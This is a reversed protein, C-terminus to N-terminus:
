HTHTTTRHTTAENVLEVTVHDLGADRLREHITARLEEQTNLSDVSVKVRVTGITLRSCVQWVHCDEVAEVSEISMLSAQLDAIPIPSRELLLDLSDRLVTYASWIIVVAILAATIPDVMRIEFVAVIATSIIVAVSAGTDGLLHYFAGRENLSLEDGHLYGVSAVNVVLGGTALLITMTPDLDVPNYFRQYSEYLIVLAMPVLLVGNLLAAFPELRHLGYTWLDREEYRDAVYTAAFAMLYSLADFLMHVADSLLALSGFLLGGALEIVFGATNIAAVVGLKRISRPETHNGDGHDHDSDTTTDHNHSEM